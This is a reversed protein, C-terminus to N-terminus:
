SNLRARVTTDLDQPIFSSHIRSGEALTEEYLLVACVWVINAMALHLLQLVTPALLVVNIVGIVIQAFVVHQLGRSLLHQRPSASERDRTSYSIVLLLCSTLVAIIPHWVRLRILFQAGFSFDQAIGELLSSAPFLTDGLATVAGSAATLLLGLLAGLLLMSHSTRRYTRQNSEEDSWWATLALAAVLFFTNVLHLAIAIARMGSANEAVLEFLVLGAGILAEFVTLILVAAAAKRVPSHVERLRRSWFFLILALVLCFGSTIRHTFEIITALEPAQPVTTGNCLPWHRGCGAGSGSARVFAGWLIVGITYALSIWAFRRFSM